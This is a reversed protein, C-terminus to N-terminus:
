RWWREKGKNEGDEGINKKEENRMIQESQDKIKMQSKKEEQKQPEEKNGEDQWIELKEERKDDEEERNQKIILDLILTLHKWGLLPLNFHSSVGELAM